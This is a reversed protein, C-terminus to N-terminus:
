DWPSSLAAREQGGAWSMPIDSYIGKQLYEVKNFISFQIKWREKKERWKVNIDVKWKIVGLERETSSIGLCDREKDWEMMFAKKVFEKEDIFHGMLKRRM